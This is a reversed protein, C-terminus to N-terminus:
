DGLPLRWAKQVKLGKRLIMRWGMAMVVGVAELKDFETAKILVEPTEADGNATTTRADLGEFLSYKGPNDFAKALSSAHKMNGEAYLRVAKPPNPMETGETYVNANKTIDTEPNEEEGADERRIIGAYKKAGDKKAEALITTKDTRDKDVSTIEKYKRYEQVSLTVPANRELLAMGNYYKGDNKDFYIDGQRFENKNGKVRKRVMQAAPTPSVSRYHISMDEFVAEPGSGHNRERETVNLKSSKESKKVAPKPSSMFM